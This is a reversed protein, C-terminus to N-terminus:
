RGFNRYTGLGSLLKILIFIDAGAVLLYPSLYAYFLRFPFNARWWLITVILMAVLHLLVVIALSQRCRYIITTTRNAGLRPLFAALLWCFFYGGFFAIWFWHLYPASITTWMSKFISIIGNM